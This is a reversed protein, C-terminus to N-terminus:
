WEYCFTFPLWLTCLDCPLLPLLLSFLPLHWARALSWGARMSFLVTLAWEKGGAMWSPDAAIAWVGGMLGWGWSIQLPCIFWVRASSLLPSRYFRSKRYSSGNENVYNQIELVCQGSNREEMIQLFWKHIQIKQIASQFVLMAKSSTTLLQEMEKPWVM